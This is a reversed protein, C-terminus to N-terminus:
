PCNIWDDEEYRWSLIATLFPAPVGRTGQGTDPNTCTGQVATLIPAPAGALTMLPASVPRSLRLSLTKWPADNPSKRSADAHGMSFTVRHSSKRQKVDPDWVSSPTAFTKICHVSETEWISNRRYDPEKQRQWENQSPNGPKRTEQSTSPWASFSNRQIYIQFTTIDHYLCKSCALVARVRQNLSPEIKIKIRILRTNALYVSIM